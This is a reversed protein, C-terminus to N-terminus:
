GDLAMGKFRSRCRIRIPATGGAAHAAVIGTASREVGEHEALARVAALLATTGKTFAAYCMKLASAAGAGGEIM